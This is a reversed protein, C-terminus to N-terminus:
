KVKVKLKAYVGNQAYAYVTATGKKKATIKGSATVKVVKPNSSEFKIKRHNKVKKDAKKAKAKLTFKKGKKITYTSKANTIKVSKYNGVKGGKTAVHLTKSTAIVKNKANVALIMYKYYTGKKLKKQTFTKKTTTALKKYAKGCKNGMIIYKKAGKVKNWTVKISKKTVKKSNAKLLGFTSGKPDKDNKLAKVFNVASDANPTGDLSNIKKATTPQTAPAKTPAQTAPAATTAQTAPETTPAVTTTPEQTESTPETVPETQPAIIKGDYDAFNVDTFETQSKWATGAEDYVQYQITKATEGATKPVQVEYVPAGDDTTRESLKMDAQHWSDDMACYNFKYTSNAALEDASPAYYFTYNDAVPETDTPAQTTETAETGTPAQTTETAETNTPAQTTETAETSTPAQTTEETPETSTPAQTTETAETNTPAQTTEETPETTTPAQTTETAETSTPAQTTQEATTPQTPQEGPASVSVEFDQPSVIQSWAILDQVTDYKEKYTVDGFDPDVTVEYDAVGLTQFDVTLTQDANFGEKIKGTFTVYEGGNRTDVPSSATSWVLIRENAVESFEVDPFTYPTEYKGVRLQTDDYRLSITNLETYKKTKLNITFSFTDGAKYSRTLDEFLGQQSVITLKHTDGVSTEPATTPAATTPAVTTPAATTPAVTTPAATTPAVTTPAATTAQTEPEAKTVYICNKFWDAGGDNNPRFYLTYTGDETIEGHEGYANGMGDPIWTTAGGDSVKVIKLMSSTTLDVTGMYEETDAFENKTLKYEPKVSWSNFNGVIYYEDSPAATTPATTPAVTTPAATTPAVTTPAATTPAVTTPAATTPATTPAVTTPAVTTPAATTAQTAPQTEPQTEPQVESGGEASASLTFKDAKGDEVKSWAALTEVTSHIETYTTTGFDTDVVVDFDAVSLTQLDVTVTQDSNFADKVKGTFTLYAGGQRTDVPSTATSLVYIFENALENTTPDPLTYPSEVKAVRIQTGDYQVSITNDEVFKETKLNLTLKFVDGAKYQRSFDDFLGQASKFTVKHTEDAAFATTTAAATFVSLLMLISLLLAVPKKVMQM